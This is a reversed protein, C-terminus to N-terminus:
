STCSWRRRPPITAASRTAQVWGTFAGDRQAAAVAHRALSSKGVGAAAVLVVAPAISGRRLEEIRALEEDRGVLPWEVAEAPIAGPEM